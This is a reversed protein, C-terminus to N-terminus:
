VLDTIFTRTEIFFIQESHLTILRWPTTITIQELGLCLCRWFFLVAFYSTM